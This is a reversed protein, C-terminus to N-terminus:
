STARHGALNRGATGDCRVRLGRVGLNRAFELDTDRDGIM